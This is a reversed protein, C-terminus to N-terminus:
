YLIFRSVQQNPRIKEMWLKFTVRDGVIPIQECLYEIDASTLHLIVDNTIGQDATNKVTNM